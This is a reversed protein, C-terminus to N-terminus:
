DKIFEKLYNNNYINKDKCEILESIQKRLKKNEEFLDYNEDCIEIFNDELRKHTSSLEKHKAILADYYNKM